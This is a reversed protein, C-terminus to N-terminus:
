RVSSNRVRATSENRMYRDGGSAGASWTSSWRRSTGPTEGWSARPREGARHEDALIACAEAFEGGTLGIEIIENVAGPPPPGKWCTAEVDVVNLLEGADGM